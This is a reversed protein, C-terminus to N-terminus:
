VHLATALSITIFGRCSRGTIYVYIHYISHVDEIRSRFMWKINEFILMEDFPRREWTILCESGHFLKNM